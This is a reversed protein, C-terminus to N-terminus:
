RAMAIKAQAKKLDHDRQEFSKEDTIRRALAEQYEAKASEADLESAPTANSTLITLVNDKMQAIGGDILYHQTERNPLDLRLPGVGNRLLIPARGSLLGILGDHAPIIAQAVMQDFVQAEPTVVVCKFAM